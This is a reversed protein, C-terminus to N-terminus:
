SGKSFIGRIILYFICVIIEVKRYKNYCIKYGIKYNYELVFEM